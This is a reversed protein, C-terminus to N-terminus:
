SIIEETEEMKKFLRKLKLRLWISAPLISAAESIPFAYWLYELGFYHGLLYM